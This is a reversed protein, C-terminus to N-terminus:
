NGLYIYLRELAGTYLSLAGSAGIKIRHFRLELGADVTLGERTVGSQLSEWLEDQNLVYNRSSQWNSLGWRLKLAKLGYNFRAQWYWSNNQYATKEELHYRLYLRFDLKSALKRKIETAMRLQLPCSSSYSSDQLAIIERDFFSGSFRLLSLSDTYVTQLDIRELSASSSLRDLSQFSTCLLRFQLRSAAQWSFKYSIENAHNQSSLSTQRYAYAPIQKRPLIAIKLEQQFKPYTLEALVVSNVTQDSSYALESSLSVKGLGARGYISTGSLTQQWGSSSFERDYGQSYGLWALDLHRTKLSLALGAIEEKVKDMGDSRSKPLYSIRDETITARRDQNSGLLSAKVAGFALELAAGQMQYYGPSGATRIELGPSESDGIGFIIGKGFQPRYNGLYLSKVLKSSPQFSLGLNLLDLEQKHRYNLNASILKHSLALSQSLTESDHNYSTRFKLPLKGNLVDSLVRDFADTEQQIPDLEPILEETQATLLLPLLLLLLAFVAKQSPSSRNGLHRNM